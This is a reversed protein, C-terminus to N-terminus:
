LSESVIASCKPDGNEDVLLGGFHKPLQEADICEMLLPQWKKPDAKYIGIKSLTYEHIFKKVVSFAM